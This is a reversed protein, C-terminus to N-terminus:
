STRKDISPVGEDNLVQGKSRVRNCLTEKCTSSRKRDPPVIAHWLSHALSGYVSGFRVHKNNKIKLSGTNAKFLSRDYCFHVSVTCLKGSFVLVTEPSSISQGAQRCCTRTAGTANSQFIKPVAQAAAYPMTSIQLRIPSISPKDSHTTQVVSAPTGRLKQLPSMILLRQRLSPPLVDQFAGNIHAKRELLGEMHVLTRCSCQEGQAAAFCYFINKAASTNSRYSSSPTSTNTMLRLTTQTM